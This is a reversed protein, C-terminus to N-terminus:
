HPGLFVVTGSILNLQFGKLIILYWVHSYIVLAMVIVRENELGRCFEHNREAWNRTEKTLSRLYYLFVNLLVM